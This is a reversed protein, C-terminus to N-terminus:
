AKGGSGALALVARAFYRRLLVETKLGRSTADNHIKVSPLSDWVADIQEESVEGSVAVSESPSAALMAKYSKILLEEAVPWAADRAAKVMEMTPGAPISVGKGAEASVPQPPAATIMARVRGLALYARDALDKGTSSKGTTIWDLATRIAVIEPDNIPDNAERMARTRQEALAQSARAFDYMQQVSYAVVPFGDNLDLNYAAKPLEPMDEPHPTTTM